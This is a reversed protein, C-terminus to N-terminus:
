RQRGRGSQRVGGRACPRHLRCHEGVGVGEGFEGFYYFGGGGFEGADDSDGDDQDDEDDVQDVIGKGDKGGRKRRAKANAKSFALAAEMETETMKLDLSAMLTRLSTVSVMELTGALSKLREAAREKKVGVARPHWWGGLFAEGKPRWGGWNTYTACGEIRGGNQIRGFYDLLVGKKEM